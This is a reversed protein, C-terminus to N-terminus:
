AELSVMCMCNCGVGSFSLLVNANTVETLKLPLKCTNIAEFCHFANLIRPFTLKLTIKKMFIYCFQLNHVIEHIVKIM